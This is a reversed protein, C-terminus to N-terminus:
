RQVFGGLEVLLGDVQTTKEIADALLRRIAIDGMSPGEPRNPLSRLAERLHSILLSSTQSAKVLKEQLM